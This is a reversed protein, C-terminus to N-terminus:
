AKAQLKEEIKRDITQEIFASMENWKQDFIREVLREQVPLQRFYEIILLRARKQKESLNKEMKKM